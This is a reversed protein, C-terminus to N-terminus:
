THKTLEKIVESQLNAIRIVQGFQTSQTYSHNEHCWKKIFEVLELAKEKEEKTMALVVDEVVVVGGYHIDSILDADGDIDWKQRMSEVWERYKADDRWPMVFCEVVRGSKKNIKDAVTDGIIVSAIAERPNNACYLDDWWDFSQNETRTPLSRKLSALAQEYYDM